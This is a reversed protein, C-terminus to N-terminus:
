FSIIREVTEADISKAWVFVFTYSYILHTHTSYM